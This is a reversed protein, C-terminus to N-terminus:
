NEFSACVTESILWERYDVRGMDGKNKSSGGELEM